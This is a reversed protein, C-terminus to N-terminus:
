KNLFEPNIMYVGRGGWSSTRQYAIDNGDEDVYYFSHMVNGNRETLKKDKIFEYLEDATVAAMNQPDFM